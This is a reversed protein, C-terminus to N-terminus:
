HERETNLVEPTLLGDFAPTHCTDCLDTTVAAAAGTEEHTV